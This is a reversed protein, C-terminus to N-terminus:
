IFLDVISDVNNIFENYLNEVPKRKDNDFIDIFKLSIGADILEKYTVNKLSSYCNNVYDQFETDDDINKKYEDIETDEESYLHDYSNNILVINSMLNFDTNYILTMLSKYKEYEDCNYVGPYRLFGLLEKWIFCSNYYKKFLENITISINDGCYIRYPIVIPLYNYIFTSILGRDCIILEVPSDNNCYSVITKIIDIAFIQTLRKAIAEKKANSQHSYNYTSKIQTLEANLKNIEEHPVNETPFKVFAIKESKNAKEKLYNMFTTKGVNDAGEIFIFRPIKFM